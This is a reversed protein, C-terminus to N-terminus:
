IYDPLWSAASPTETGVMIFCGTEQGWAVRIRGCLASLSGAVGRATGARQKTAGHDLTCLLLVAVSCSAKCLLAPLEAVNGQLPLGLKPCSLYDHQCTQLMLPFFSSICIHAPLSRSQDASTRCHLLRGYCNAILFSRDQLPAQPNLVGTARVRHLPPLSSIMLRGELALELGVKHLCCSALWCCAPVLVSGPKFRRQAHGWHGPCQTDEIDQSSGARSASRARSSGCARSASRAGAASCARSKADPWSAALILKCLASGIAARSPGPGHQSSGTGGPHTVVQPLGQPMEGHCLVWTDVGRGWSQLGLQTCPWQRPSIGPTTGAWEGPSCSSGDGPHTQDPDPAAHGRGTVGQALCMILVFNQASRPCVRSRRGHQLYLCRWPRTQRQSAEM